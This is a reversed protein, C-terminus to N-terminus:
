GPDPDEPDADLPDPEPAAPAAPSDAAPPGIGPDGPHSDHLGSQGRHHDPGAALVAAPAASGLALAVAAVAARTRRSILLGTPLDCSLWAHWCAPCEPLPETWDIGPPGDSRATRMFPDSQHRPTMEAGRGVKPPTLDPRHPASRNVVRHGPRKPLTDDRAM